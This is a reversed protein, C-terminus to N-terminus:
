ARLEKWAGFATVLGLVLVSVPIVPAKIGLPLVGAPVGPQLHVYIAVAMQALLLLCAVLVVQDRAKASLSRLLWPLLFLIGTVMESVKGALIAEHPLHSQQIQIDFWGRIPQFFKLFGFLFMVIGLFLQLGKSFRSPM